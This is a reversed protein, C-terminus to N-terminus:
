PEVEAQRQRRAIQRAIRGKRAADMMNDKKTGLFLHEPNTCPPNDCRHLVCLGDPIPGRALVWSVRHAPQVKGEHQIQGYGFHDISGVWGWCGDHGVTVKAIYRSQIPPRQWVGTPM